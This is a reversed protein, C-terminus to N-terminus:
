KKEEVTQKERYSKLESLLWKSTEMKTSDKFKVQYVDGSLESKSASKDIFDETTKIKDIFHDMKKQIHKAADEVPYEKGNRIFIVDSKKIFEFLHEIEIKAKADPDAFLNGEWLMFALILFIYRM